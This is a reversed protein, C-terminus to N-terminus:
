EKNSSKNNGGRNPVDVRKSSEGRRMNEDTKMLEFGSTIDVICNDDCPNCNGNPFKVHPFKKQFEELSVENGEGDLLVQKGDKEKCQEKQMKILAHFSDYTKNAKNEIDANDMGEVVEESLMVFLIAVFIGCLTSHLLAFLMTGILVLRGIISNAFKVLVKPKTFLLFAVVLMVTMELQQKM